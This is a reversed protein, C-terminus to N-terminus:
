IRVGARGRVEKDERKNMWVCVGARVVGTRLVEQCWPIVLLGVREM